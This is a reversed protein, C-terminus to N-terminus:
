NAWNLSLRNRAKLASIARNFWPLFQFLIVKQCKILGAGLYARNNAEM